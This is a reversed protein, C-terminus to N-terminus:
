PPERVCTNVKLFEKPVYKLSWKNTRFVMKLQKNKKVDAHANAPNTQNPKTKRCILRQLNNLVLDM